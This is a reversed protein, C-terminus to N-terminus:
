PSSTRTSDEIQQLQREGAAIRHAAPGMCHDELLPLRMENVVGHREMHLERGIKSQEHQLEVPAMERREGGIGDGAMWGFILSRAIDNRQVSAGARREAPRDFKGCNLRERTAREAVPRFRARMGFRKQNLRDDSTKLGRKSAIAAAM